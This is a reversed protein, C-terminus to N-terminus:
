AIRFHEYDNESPRGWVAWFDGTAPRMIAAGSSEIHFPESPKQCVASEDRTLDMLAAEDVQGSSLVETARHLRNISSELLAPPRHAAVSRGEPTLFHNTHVLPASDLKTIAHTTPAAEIMYGTGYRDFLLYSHAGALPADVVAAVAADITTQALAKRVVFPWTVGVRGDTGALNNIGVCIGAENMGLQGVCGETTFVLSSVPASVEALFVHPTATDHMDWTQGYFGSGDVARDDPVIFATCTDEEPADGLRARVVDVFDTFGGVIVAEAPTIGPLKRGDGVNRRLSRRRLGRPGPLMSAALAETEDVSLSGGSWTGSAVISM